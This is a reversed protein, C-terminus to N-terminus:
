RIAGFMRDLTGWAAEMYAPYPERWTWEPQDCLLLTVAAWMLWCGEVAETRSVGAQRMYARLECALTKSTFRDYGALRKMIADRHALLGDQDAGYQLAVWSARIM